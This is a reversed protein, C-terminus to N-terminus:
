ESAEAAGILLASLQDNDAETLQETIALDVLIRRVHSVSVHLENAIFGMGKGLERAARVQLATNLDQGTLFHRRRMTGDARLSYVKAEGKSLATKVDTAPAVANEAHAKAQDKTLGSAVTTGGDVVKWEGKSNKRLAWRGDASNVSSGGKAVWKIDTATTTETVPASIVLQM